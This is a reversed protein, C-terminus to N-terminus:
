GKKENLPDSDKLIENIDKEIKKKPELIDNKISDTSEEFERKIESTAKNFEKTVKGLTRAIEPISKAGFLLLVVFLILLIESGSM